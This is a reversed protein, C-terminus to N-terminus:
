NFSQLIMSVLFAGVVITFTKATMTLEVAQATSQNISMKKLMLVMVVGSIVEDLYFLTSLELLLKGALAMGGRVLSDIAAVILIGSWFVEAGWYKCALKLAAVTLLFMLVLKLTFEIINFSPILAAHTAQEHGAVVADFSKELEVQSYGEPEFYVPDLMELEEVGRDDNVIETSSLNGPPVQLPAEVPSTVSAGLSIGRSSVIRGAILELRVGGAFLLIERDGRSAVSQPRGLEAILEERTSDVNLALGTAELSFFMGIAILLRM